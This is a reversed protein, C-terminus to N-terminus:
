SILPITHLFVRQKLGEKRIKEITAETRTEDGFLTLYLAIPAYTHGFNGKQNEAKAYRMMALFQKRDKKERLSRNATDVTRKFDGVLYAKPNKDTAEPGGQKIIFDVRYFDNQRNARRAREFSEDSENVPGCGFGNSKPNGNSDLKVELWVNDLFSPITEGFFGCLIKAFYKEFATGQKGPDLIDLVSSSVPLLSNLASKVLNGAIAKAEDTLYERVQGQIEARVQYLIDQIVQSANIEGMTMMGTPDSFVLPNNFAFQYPNFAEVGQEQVDVPDRSLFLGTESDYDRARMYYLGSESELWQGQFRFDGGLSSGDDGSEVNGFGDYVIRSVLNGDGNVLGIVSGMSDTLYYIPNGNSDLRAIISSGGYVYDSVVNGKGDTVLDTSALGNSENTAVLYNKTDNGVEGIRNGSADYLYQTTVGNSTVQTLRDYNDHSLSVTDGSKTIQSLRGDADYTYGNGGATALQGNANYTYDATGLNDVKRTRKGDLDYSYSIARVAVGTPNYPTEKSLRVAPDYEYLTYSGDERVVKSPEGGANRTYTESALVTGDAKTYVISITRDLDDYGYTTKVGNPLTKTALRNVVDYTM